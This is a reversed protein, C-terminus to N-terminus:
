NHRLTRSAYRLDQMFQELWMWRSTEYFREKVLAVNGFAKRAEAEAHDRSWGESVLRDAEIELHTQIETSFDADSRRRRLFAM